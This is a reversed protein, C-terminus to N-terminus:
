EAAVAVIRVPVQAPRPAPREAQNLVHFPLVVGQDAADPDPRNAPGAEM